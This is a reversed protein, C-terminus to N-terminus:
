TFSKNLQDLAALEATWLQIQCLKSSMQSMSHKKNGALVFFIWDYVLIELPYSLQGVMASDAFLSTCPCLQKKFIRHHM